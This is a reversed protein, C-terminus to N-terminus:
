WKNYDSIITSDDQILKFAGTSLYYEKKVLVGDKSPYSVLVSEIRKPSINIRLSDSKHQSQEISDLQRIMGFHEEMFKTPFTCTPNPKLFLCFTLIMQVVLLFNGASIRLRSM